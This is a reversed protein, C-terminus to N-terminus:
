SSTLCIITRSQTSTINKKPYITYLHDLRAFFSIQPFYKLDTVVSHQQVSKRDVSPESKDTNKRAM